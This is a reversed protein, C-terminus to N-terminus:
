ALRQKGKHYLDRKLCDEWGGFYFEGHSKIVNKLIYAYFLSGEGVM